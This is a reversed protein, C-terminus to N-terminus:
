GTVLYGKMERGRLEDSALWGEEKEVMGCLWRERERGRESGELSRPSSPPPLFLLPNEDEM